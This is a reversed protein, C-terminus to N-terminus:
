FAPIVKSGAVAFVKDSKDPKINIKGTTVGFSPLVVQHEQFWFCPLNMRSQFKAGLLIGPHLHGCIRYYNVSNDESITRPFHSIEFPGKQMIGDIVKIHNNKYLEAPLIDHNGKVLIVNIPSVSEVWKYFPECGSNQTSHFLDGAIIIERVEFNDIIKNLKLLEADIANEPLYVGHNRFHTIKGIHLDAIFIAKEKPWYLAHSPLLWLEEGSVQHIFHM